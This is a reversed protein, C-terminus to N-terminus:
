LSCIVLAMCSVIKLPNRPWPAMTLTNPHFSLCFGPSKTSQHSLQTDWSVLTVLTQLASFEYSLAKCHSFELSRCLIGGLVSWCMCTSFSSLTSSLFDLLILPLLALYVCLTPFLAQEWWDSQFVNHNM